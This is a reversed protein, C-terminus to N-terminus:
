HKTRESSGTFNWNKVKKAPEDTEWGIRARLQLLYIDAWVHIMKRCIVECKIM